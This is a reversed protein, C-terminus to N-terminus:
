ARLPIPARAYKHIADAFIPEWIRIPHKLLAKVEEVEGARALEILRCHEGVSAIRKERGARSGIGYFRMKDRLGLAMEMM